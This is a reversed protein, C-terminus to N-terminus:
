WSPWSICSKTSSWVNKPSEREIPIDWYSIIHQFFLFSILKFSIEHLYQPKQNKLWYFTGFLLDDCSEFIEGIHKDLSHRELISKLQLKKLTIMRTDYMICRSTAKHIRIPHIYIHTNKKRTSAEWVSFHLLISIINKKNSWLNMLFARMPVRELFIKWELKPYASINNKAFM